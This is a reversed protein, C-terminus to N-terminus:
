GGLPYRDERLLRRKEPDSVAGSWWMEWWDQLKKESMLEQDREVKLYYWMELVVSCLLLFMLELYGQRHSISASDWAFDTRDALKVEM